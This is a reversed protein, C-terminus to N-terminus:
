FLPPPSPTYDDRVFVGKYIDDKSSYIKRSITHDPNMFNPDITITANDCGPQDPDYVKIHWAFNAPYTEPEMAIDSEIGYAVVEHGTSGDDYMIGLAVPQGRKLIEVLKRLEDTSSWRFTTDISPVRWTLFNRASGTAAIFILLATPVIVAATAVAGAILGILGGVIGGVIAGFLGFVGAGIGAGIVAGTVAGALAGVAVTVVVTGILWVYKGVTEWNKNSVATKLPLMIPDYPVEEQEWEQWFSIGSALIRIVKTKRWLKGDRGIAYINLRHEDLTVSPTCKPKLGVSPAGLIEWDTWVDASFNRYYINGDIGECVLVIKGESISSAAPSAAFLIDGSLEDWNWNGGAIKKCQWVKGRSTCFAASFGDWSVAAVGSTITRGPPTGIPEWSTLVNPTVSSNNYRFHLVGSFDVYFVELHTSAHSFMAPNYKSKVEVPGNDIESGYPYDGCMLRAGAFNPTRIRRLYIVEDTGRFLIETFEPSRAVIAPSSLASDGGCDGWIGFGSGTDIKGITRNGGRVGNLDISTGNDSSKRFAIIQEVSGSLTAGVGYLIPTNYDMNSLTPVPVGAFYYDLALKSMGNCLGYFEISNIPTTHIFDNGFRFGHISPIFPTTINVSM